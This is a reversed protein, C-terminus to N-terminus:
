GIPDPGVPDPDAVGKMVAGEDGAIIVQGLWRDQSAQGDLGARVTCPGADVARDHGIAPCIVNRGSRCGADREAESWAVM